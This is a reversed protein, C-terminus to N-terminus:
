TAIGSLAKIKGVIQIAGGPAHDLKWAWPQKRAEAIWATPTKKTTWIHDFGDFPIAKRPTEWCELRECFEKGHRKIGDATAGEISLICIRPKRWTPEPKSEPPPPDITAAVVAAKATAPLAVPVFHGQIQYGGNFLRTLQDVMGRVNAELRTLREELATATVISQNLTPILARIVDFVDPPPEAPEPPAPAPEAATGTLAAALEDRISKYPVGAISDLQRRRHPPLVAQARQMAALPRELPNARLWDAAAGIVLAREERDWRVKKRKAVVIM